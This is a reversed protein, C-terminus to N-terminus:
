GPILNDIEMSSLDGKGWDDIRRKKNKPEITIEQAVTSHKGSHKSKIHRALNDKRNVTYDCQDCKYEKREHVSIIHRTLHCKQTFVEGCWACSFM